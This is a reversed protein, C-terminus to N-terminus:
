TNFLALSMFVIEFQSTKSELHTLFKFGNRRFLFRAQAGWVCVLSIIFIKSVENERDTSYTVSGRKKGKSKHGARKRSPGLFESRLKRYPGRVRNTLPIDVLAHMSSQRYHGNRLFTILFCEAFGCAASTVQLNGLMGKICEDNVLKANRTAVRTCFFVTM